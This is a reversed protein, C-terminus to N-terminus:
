LPNQWHPRLRNIQDKQSHWVFGFYGTVLAITAHLWIDHSEIPLKGWLTNLGPFFGAVALLGYIIANARCFIKSQYESRFAALAWIGFGLHVLNHLGNVPFLGFLLGHALFGNEPSPTYTVLQPIFGLIGLVVFAIGIILTFKKLIM